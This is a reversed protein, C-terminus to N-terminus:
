CGLKEVQSPAFGNSETCLIQIQTKEAPPYEENIKMRGRTGHNMDSIKCLVELNELNLNIEIFIFCKSDKKKKKLPRMWPM